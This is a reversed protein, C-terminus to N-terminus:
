LKAPPNWGRLRRWAEEHKVKNGWTASILVEAFLFNITLCAYKDGARHRLSNRTYYLEMGLGFNGTHAECLLFDLKFHKRNVEKHKVDWLYM